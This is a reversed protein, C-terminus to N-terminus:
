FLWHFYQSMVSGGLIGENNLLMNLQSNGLSPGPIISEPAHKPQRPFTNVLHQRVISLKESGATRAKLRRTVANM